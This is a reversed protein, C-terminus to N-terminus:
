YAVVDVRNWEFHAFYPDSGDLLILSGRLATIHLSPVRPTDLLFGSMTLQM